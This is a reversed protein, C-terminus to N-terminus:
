LQGYKRTTRSTPRGKRRKRTLLPFSFDLIQSGGATIDCSAQQDSYTTNHPVAASIAAAKSDNPITGGQARETSVISAGNVDINQSGRKRPYKARRAMPTPFDLVQPLDSATNFDARLVENRVMSRDSLLSEDEKHADGNLEDVGAYKSRNTNKPPLCPASPDTPSFIKGRVVFSDLISKQKFNPKPTVFQVHTAHVSSADANREKGRKATTAGKSNPYKGPSLCTKRPDAALTTNTSYLDDASNGLSQSVSRTRKHSLNPRRGIHNKMRVREKRIHVEDTSTSTKQMWAVKVDDTSTQDTKKTRSDDILDDRHRSSATADKYGIPQHAHKMGQLDPDREPARERSQKNKTAPETRNPSLSHPLRPRKCYETKRWPPMDSQAVKQELNYSAPLTEPPLLYFNNNNTSNSDCSLSTRATSSIATATSITSTAATICGITSFSPLELVPMPEADDDWIDQQKYASTIPSQARHHDLTIKHRPEVFNSGELLSRSVDTCEDPAADMASTRLRRKRVRRRPVSEVQNDGGNRLMSDVDQLIKQTRERRKALKATSTHRIPSLYAGSSGFYSRCVGVSSDRDDLRTEMEPRRIGTARLLRSKSSQGRGTKIGLSGRVGSQAHTITGQPPEDQTVTRSVRLGDGQEEVEEEEVDHDSTFPLKRTVFGM